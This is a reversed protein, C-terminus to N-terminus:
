DMEQRQGLRSPVEQGLWSAIEEGERHKESGSEWPPSM